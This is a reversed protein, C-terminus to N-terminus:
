RIGYGAFEDAIRPNAALARRIDADGDAVSGSRKRAIGRGYLASPKGAQIDLAADYDAIAQRPRGRKLNVLGRSDLADIFTPHLKLATDCDKLAADLQNLMANVWCRNNLAQLNSPHMALIEDFWLKAYPYDKDIAAKIGNKTLEVIFEDRAKRSLPTRASPPM